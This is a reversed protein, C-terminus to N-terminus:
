GSSSLNHGKGAIDGWQECCGKARGRGNLEASVLIIMRPETLPVRDQLAGQDAETWVGAMTSVVLSRSNVDEGPGALAGRESRM